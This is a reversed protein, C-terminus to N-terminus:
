TQLPFSAAIFYEHLVQPLTASASFSSQLGDSIGYRYAPEIALVIKYKRGVWDTMLHVFGRFNKRPKKKPM